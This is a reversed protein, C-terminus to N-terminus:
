TGLAPTGRLEFLRAGDITEKLVYNSRIIAALAPFTEISETAPDAAPAFAHPRVDDIVLIPPNSKFDRLYRQRYYTSVPSKILQFYTTADRTAMTTETRVYINPNWGWVSIRTKPHVLGRIAVTMPDDMPATNQVMDRILIDPQHQFARWGAPLVITVAVLLLMATTGTAYASTITGTSTVALAAIAGVFLSEAPIMLVLYHNFEHHSAAAEYGTALVLAGTFILPVAAVLRIPRRRLVCWVIVITLLALMGHLFLEYRAPGTTLFHIENGGGYAGTYVINSIIYSWYFDNLSGGVAAAGILLVPVFLVAGLFARIPVVNRRVVLLTLCAAGVLAASPLSQLKAFASAGITLGALIPMTVTRPGDRRAYVSASAWLALALLANPLVEGSTHLFDPSRTLAEVVVYCIAACAGTRSGWVARGAAFIAAATVLLLLTGIIHTTVLNPTIGILNPVALIYSGLPGGSGGDFGRWPVLDSTAKIAQATTQAEDVNFPANIIDFPWRLWVITIVMAGVFATENFSWQEYTPSLRLATVILLALCVLIMWTYLWPVRTFKYLPVRIVDGANAARPNTLAIWGRIGGGADSARITVPKGWWSQPLIRTITVYTEGADTATTFSIMRAGDPSVIDLQQNLHSTGGAIDLSLALPAPFPASQLTGTNADSGNWSGWRDGSVMAITSPYEGHRVFSGTATFTVAIPSAGRQVAILFVAIAISAFLALCASVALAIRGFSKV